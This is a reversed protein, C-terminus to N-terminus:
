KGVEVLKSEAKIRATISGSCTRSPDPTENFDLKGCAHCMWATDSIEHPAREWQHFQYSNNSMEGGSQGKGRDMRFLFGPPM